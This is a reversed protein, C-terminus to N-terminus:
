QERSLPVQVEGGEKWEWDAGFEFVSRPVTFKIKKECVVGFSLRCVGNWCGMKTLENKLCRRGGEISLKTQLLVPM